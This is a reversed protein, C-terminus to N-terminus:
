LPPLNPLNSTDSPTPPPLPPLDSPASPITIRVIQPDEGTFEFDRCGEIDYEKVEWCLEFEDGTDPDEVGLFHVFPSFQFGLDFEECGDDKPDHDEIEACLELIGLEGHTIEIQVDTNANVPKTISSVIILCFSGIIITWYYGPVSYKRKEM